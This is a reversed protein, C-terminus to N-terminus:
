VGGLRRRLRYGVGRITEISDAGFPIDIKARLGRIHVDIVNSFHLLGNGLNAAIQDRTLIRGANTMLVEMLRTQTPTLEVEMAGRRVILRERELVMDAVRLVPGPSKSFRRSLARLRAELVDLPVPKVVYDDAGTNLANVTSEADGRATLVLIPVDVGRDRLRQILDIGSGDPLYLDVVLVDFLKSKARHFGAAATSEVEVFYGDEGLGQRLLRALIRDDEILLVSPGPSSVPPTVVHGAKESM